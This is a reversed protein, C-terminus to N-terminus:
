HVHVDRITAEGEPSVFVEASLDSPSEETTWLPLVVSWGGTGVAIVDTWAHSWIEEPQAVLTAGNARYDLVWALQEPLAGEVLASLQAAIAPRLNSPVTGVPEYDKM